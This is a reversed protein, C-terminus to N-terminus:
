FTIRENKFLSRKLDDLTGSRKQVKRANFLDCVTSFTWEFPWSHHVTTVSSTWSGMPVLLLFRERFFIGKFYKLKRYDIRVNKFPIHFCTLFLYTSLFLLKIHRNIAEITQFSIKANFRRKQAIKWIFPM